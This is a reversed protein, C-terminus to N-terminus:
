KKCCPPTHPASADDVIKTIEDLSRQSTEDLYPLQCMRQTWVLKGRVHYQVVDASIAACTADATKVQWTARALDARITRMQSDALCGQAKRLPKGSGDRSDLTWAGTAYVVLESTGAASVNMTLDVRHDIEFLVDGSARCLDPALRAHPSPAPPPTPAPQAAAASACLLSALLLKTTMGGDFTTM